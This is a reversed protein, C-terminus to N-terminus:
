DIFDFEENFKQKFLAFVAEIIEQNEIGVYEEDDTDCNRVELIVVQDANEETPLLVIYKKRKYDIIDLFEFETEAGDQDTLTIIADEEM